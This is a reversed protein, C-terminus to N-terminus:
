KSICPSWFQLCDVKSYWWHREHLLWSEMSAEWEDNRSCHMWSGPYKFAKEAMLEPSMYWRTGRVDSCGEAIEYAHDYYAQSVRFWWDKSQLWSLLHSCAPHKDPKIDYHAYGCGHIYSDWVLDQTSSRVENEPLGVGGSNRIRSCLGGYCM